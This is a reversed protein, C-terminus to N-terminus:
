AYITADFSSKAKYVRAWTANLIKATAFKKWGIKTLQDLPDSKDAGKVIYVKPSAPSDGSLKVAGFANQALYMTSFINGAADYTGETAGEIFQNTAEVYRVNHLMGLEGNFINKSGAYVNAEKWDPDKMVDAAHEPCTVAVYSGNFRKGRNKKLRTVINLADSAVWKAAGVNAAKLDTFNTIGQAYVKTGNAVLENRSLDDHHLAADEGMSTIGQKVSNFIETMSLLDTLIALEGYQTLTASVTTLALDRTTSPATGEVLTQINSSAGAGFRFWKIDLAGMNKPLEALQAFQNLVLEQIAYPLLQKSFYTQYEATLTSTTNNSM